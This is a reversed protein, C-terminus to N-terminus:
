AGAHHIGVGIPNGEANHAKVTIDLHLVGANETKTTCLISGTPSSRHTVIGTVTGTIDIDNSVGGQTTDRAVLHSPRDTLPTIDIVCFPENATHKAASGFMTTKITQNPPCHETTTIAYTDQISGEHSVTGTLDIAFDCGNMDVTTPFGATKCNVYHPTITVNSEGSSLREHKKGVDTEAQTLVKHGTYTSGPCVTSQGFATFSNALEAGTQTGTLTFTESPVPTLTGNQALAGSAAVASFAFAAVLALGLVKLNRIM